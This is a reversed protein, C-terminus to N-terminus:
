AIRAIRILRSLWGIRDALLGDAVVRGDARRHEAFLESKFQVDGTEM